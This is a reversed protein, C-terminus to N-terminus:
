RKGTVHKIYTIEAPDFPTGDPRFIDHFWLPPEATYPKLWSDWPYITQSKGAVLGWCYAGVKQEKFYALLPDFRSGNTRAMFETCWIPRGYRRLQDVRKQVQPLKEYSHFSIIDSQEVSLRAAPSLADHAAWDGIWVGVTLPQTPDAERAWHFLEGLLLAAMEKKNAIEAKAYAPNPNDPENFLDWADIRPDDRFRHIVGYVYPRLAAHQQSDGLIEGGPAQVWRSNHRRPVPDAQPGPKPHPDWVGDFPVLVTKIGHKDAVALFQDVRKLFEERDQQWLLNHLFVRVSNFGIDAAWGLERDITALDFTDAQWMELQNAATSPAFNCGVPWARKAYWDNAQGETWRDRAASRHALVSLAVVSLLLCAYKRHLAM